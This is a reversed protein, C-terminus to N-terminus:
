AIEVFRGTKGIFGLKPNVILVADFNTITPGVAVSAGPWFYANSISYSGSSTTPNVQTWTCRDAPWITIDTTEIDDGASNNVGIDGTPTGQIVMM